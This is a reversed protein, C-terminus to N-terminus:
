AAGGGRDRVLSVFAALLDLGADQSKEPHFQVGFLNGREIGITIPGGGYEITAAVDSPEGSTIHYSHAFYFPEGAPIAHFLRSERRPTVGRWGFNPVREGGGGAELRAVRGPILGLGEHLGNEESEGAFLQMGLCIGLLPKGAHFRRQVPEALGRERLIAMADGFAGVGPLVAAPAEEVEGPDATPVAEAGVRRFAQVISGVNSVGIDIISIM